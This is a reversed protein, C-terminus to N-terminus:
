NRRLPLVIIWNGLNHWSGFPYAWKDWNDTMAAIAMCRGVMYEHRRLLSYSFHDFKVM